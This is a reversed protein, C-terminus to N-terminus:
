QTGGFGTRPARPPQTANIANWLATATLSLDPPLGPTPPPAPTSAPTAATISATQNAALTIWANLGRAGLAHIIKYAQQPTVAVTILTAPQVQDGGETQIEGTNPDVRATGENLAQGGASVKVVWVRPEILETFEVNTAPDRGFGYLNVIHGARLAGGVTRDVGAGFSVVELGLDEVFRVQEIPKANTGKIQTGPLIQDTSMLGVVTDYPYVGQEFADDARIPNDARIMDQTIVTYPKILTAARAPTTRAPVPPTAFLDRVVLLVGVLLLLVALLLVLTRSNM